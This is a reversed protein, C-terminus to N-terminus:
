NRMRPAYQRSHRCIEGFPDFRVRVGRTSAIIVRGSLCPGVKADSETIWASIDTYLQRDQCKDTDQTM